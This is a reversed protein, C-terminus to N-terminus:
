QNFARNMWGRLFKDQSPNRVTINLYYKANEVVLKKHLWENGIVKNKDRLENIDFTINTNIAILSDYYLQNIPIITDPTFTYKLDNEEEFIAIKKNLLIKMQSKLDKQTPKNSLIKKGQIIINNYQNQYFLGRKNRINLDKWVSYNLQYEKYVSDFNNTPFILAPEIELSDIESKASLLTSAIENEKNQIKGNKFCSTLLIISLFILLKNKM